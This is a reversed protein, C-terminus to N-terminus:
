KQKGLEEESVMGQNFDSRIENKVGFARENKTRCLKMATYLRSLLHGYIGPSTHPNLTFDDRGSKMEDLPNRPKTEHSM